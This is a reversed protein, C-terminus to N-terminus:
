KQTKKEYTEAGTVLCVGFAEIYEVSPLQYFHKPEISAVFVHDLLSIEGMITTIIVPVTDTPSFFDANTENNENNNNKELPPLCLLLGPWTSLAVFKSFTMRMSALWLLIKIKGTHTGAKADEEVVSKVAASRESLEKWFLQTTADQFFLTEKEPHTPFLTYQLQFTQVVTLPTASCGYAMTREIFNLDDCDHLIGKKRRAEIYSPELNIFYAHIPDASNLIANKHAGTDTPTCRAVEHLEVDITEENENEKKESAPPILLNATYAVVNKNKSRAIYMCTDHHDNAFRHRPTLHGRIVKNLVRPALYSLSKGEVGFQQLVLALLTYEESTQTM